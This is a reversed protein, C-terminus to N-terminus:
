PARLSGLFALLQARRTASLNEYQGASIAGQGGHLRIAEELTAARGDHMYPASDAVGWLPPTRWEEARPASRDDAVIPIPQNPQGYSGSGGELEQGMRHLLLDSYLGDVSGLKPTHCDACGIKGFVERGANVAAQESPEAPLREVPRNLSRVFETMEDCQAQTLDLGVAVYGSDGLPRPKDAGPNALGLENACAAQVFNALHATQGKWGFRGVGGDALRHARGVPWTESEASARGFALRESREHALIVRGPIEDILKDGFLAPTNRQSLKIHPLVVKINPLVVPPVNRNDFGLDHLQKLSVQSLAPLAPDLDALTERYRPDTAQAHVVGERLQDGERLPLIAFATVNDELGGGGGPGGQNHCAVCSHDNFVPGIGAGSSLPDNPQWDHKFLTEGQEARGSDVLRARQLTLM